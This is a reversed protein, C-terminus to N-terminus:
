RQVGLLNQPDFLRRFLVKIVGSAVGTTQVNLTVNNLAQGIEGTQFLQRPGGRNFLFAATGDVLSDVIHELNNARLKAFDTDIRQNRSLELLRIYGDPNTFPGTTDADLQLTNAGDFARFGIMTYDGGSPLKIEKPNATATGSEEQVEYSSKITQISDPVTERFYQYVTVGIKGSAIVLGAGSDVQAQTAPTVILKLDSFKHAPIAPLLNLLEDGLGFERFYIPVNVRTRGTAGRSGYKYPLTGRQWQAFQYLDAGNLNTFPEYRGGAVSGALTVSNLLAPLGNISATTAQTTINLEASVDIQDILSERPLNFTLAGGGLTFAQSQESLVQRVLVPKM